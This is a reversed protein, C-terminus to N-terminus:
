LSEGSSPSAPSYVIDIQYSARCLGSHAEQIFSVRIFLSGKLQLNYNHESTREEFDPKITAAAVLQSDVKKTSRWIKGKSRKCEVPFAGGGQGKGGWGGGVIPVEYRGGDALCIGDGEVTCLGIVGAEDFM